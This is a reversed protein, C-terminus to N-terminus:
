NNPLLSVEVGTSQAGRTGGPLKEIRESAGERSVGRGPGTGSENAHAGFGIVFPGSSPSNELRISRLSM